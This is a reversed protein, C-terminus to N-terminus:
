NGTKEYYIKKIQEYTISKIGKESMIEQKQSKSLNRWYRLIIPM